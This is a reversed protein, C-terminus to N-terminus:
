RACGGTAAPSVPLVGVPASGRSWGVDRSRGVVFVGGAVDRGSLAAMFRCSAERRRRM